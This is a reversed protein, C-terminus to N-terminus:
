SPTATTFLDLVTVGLAEAIPELESLSFEVKGNLRQSMAGQSLGVAEALVRQPLGRRSRLSEVSAAIAKEVPVGAM